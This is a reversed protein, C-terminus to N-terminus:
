AGGPGWAAVLDTEGGGPIVGSAARLSRVARMCCSEPGPAGTSSSTATLVRGSGDRDVPVHQRVRLHGIFLRARRAEAAALMPYFRLVPNQSVVGPPAMFVRVMAIAASTMATM